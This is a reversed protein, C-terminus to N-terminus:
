ESVADPVGVDFAELTFTDGLTVAHPSALAGTALLVSGTTKVIAWWGGTDTADVVGDTIAAITRKRGGGPATRNAIAGISPSDKHAVMTAGIAAAYTAPEATKNVTLKDGDGLRALAADLDADPIFAM